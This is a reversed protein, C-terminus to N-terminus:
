TDVVGWRVRAWVREHIVYAVTTYVNSAVMFGIAVRVRGTFLYITAFDLCMVIIRYTIGKAISRQTSVVRAM